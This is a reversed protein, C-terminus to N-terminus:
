KTGKMSKKPPNYLDDWYPDITLSELVFTKLDIKSIKIREYSPRGKRKNM